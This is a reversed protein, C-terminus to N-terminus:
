AQPTPGFLEDALQMDSKTQAYDTARQKVDALINEMVEKQAKPDKNQYEQLDQDALTNIMKNLRGIGPTEREAKVRGIFGAKSYQDLAKILDFDPSKANHVVTEVQWRTNHRLAFDDNQGLVSKVLKSAGMASVSAWAGFLASIMGARPSMGNQAVHDVMYGFSKADVPFHVDNERYAQLAAMGQEVLIQSEIHSGYVASGMLAMVMAAGSLLSAKYVTDDRFAEKVTSVISSRQEAYQQAMKEIEPSM